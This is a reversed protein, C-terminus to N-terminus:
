PRLRLKVCACCLVRKGRRRTAQLSADAVLQTRSSPAQRGAVLFAPIQALVEADSLRQHPQADAALNAQLLLSILDRGGIEKKEIPGRAQRALFLNKKEQVIRMRIADMLKKSELQAKVREGPQVIVGDAVGGDERYDDVYRM